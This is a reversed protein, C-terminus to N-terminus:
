KGTGPPLPASVQAGVQATPSRRAEALSKKNERRLQSLVTDLRGAASFAQEPRGYGMEQALGVLYGAEAASGHAAGVHMRRETSTASRASRSLSTPISGVAGLLRLALGREDEMPFDEVLRAVSRALKRLSKLLFPNM